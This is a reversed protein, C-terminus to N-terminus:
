FANRHQRRTRCTCELSTVEMHFPSRPKGLAFFYREFYWCFLYRGPSGSNLFLRDILWLNVKPFRNPWTENEMGKPCTM